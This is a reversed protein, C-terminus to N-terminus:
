ATGPLSPTNSEALWQSIDDVCHAIIDAGWDTLPPAPPLYGYAAAITLTGAARGAEIDRPHDGIYVATQVPRQLSRCALLIPEPDPKSNVVHDPCIITRCREALGLRQMLVETYAFPKNTVVGWAIDSADLTDLLATMGPYLSASTDQIRESYLALLLQHLRAFEPATEDIDYALRVLARAGSSVTQHVREEDPATLGDQQCMLQLVANFDAATDMLTGDLDFLMTQIATM